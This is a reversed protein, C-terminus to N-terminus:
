IERRFYVPGYYVKHAVAEAFAPEKSMDNGSGVVEMALRSVRLQEHGSSLGVGVQLPLDFLPGLLEVL